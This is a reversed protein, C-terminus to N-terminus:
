FAKGAGTIVIVRVDNDEKAQKLSNKLEQNLQLNLANYKEPRNLTIVVINDKKEYIVTEFDPSMIENDGKNKQSNIM